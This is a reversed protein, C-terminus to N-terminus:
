FGAALMVALTLRERNVTPTTDLSPVPRGDVFGSRLIPVNFLLNVGVGINFSVATANGAADPRNLEVLLGTGVARVLEDTGPTMSVYPGVAVAPSVPFTIHTELVFGADANSFRGVVLVGDVVRVNAPDVIDETISDFFQLGVGFGFGAFAEPVDQASARQGNLVILLAVFAAIILVLLRAAAWRQQDAVPDRDM